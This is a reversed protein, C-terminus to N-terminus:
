STEYKQLLEIVEARSNRMLVDIISLHSVFDSSGQFYTINAMKIFFLEIGNGRFYEKSYLEVGGIPNIYNTAGLKQCTRIVREKGKFVGTGELSSSKIINTNINLYDNIGQLSYFIYDFLNEADFLVIDKILPYVLKFSCAKRYSSEIQRLLKLKEKDYSPSIYREGINLYDSDKKLNISFLTDKGNVLIRNRNVWGKKSFEINDYLVFKDVAHLLQFYGLYPLFYPQMIALKM